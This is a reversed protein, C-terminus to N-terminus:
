DKLDVPRGTRASDIAGRILALAALAGQGDTEPKRGTRICDAFEDIEELVPDGIPLPITEPKDQNKDLLTLTTYQDVVSWIQLYEDFPVNPLSVSCFLHADTGYVYIWNARPSSYTSGLYGLVGSAFQFTAMTVDEVEAPTYLKNFFAFVKKIPGFYYRLTDAHHVGMTMLSGAPCGADNGYWRWKDPTLEFGLRASFNSEVMVPKGIVGKDMLQKVQRFGSLRRMDHGVLLVVRARQCAEVMREGDALTNAIPKDVFIHKGCQAAAVAYEAHIANPTTLLIGEVDDRKLVNEFSKEYECGYKKGFAERKEPKRTYCTVLKAKKSRMVANAIVGSWSGLGILAVKVRDKDRM